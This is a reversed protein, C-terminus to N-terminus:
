YLAFQESVGVIIVVGNWASARISCFPLCQSVSVYVPSSVRSAGASVALPPVRDDAALGETSLALLLGADLNVVDLPHGAPGIEGHGERVDGRDAEVTVQEQVGSFDLWPSIRTSM